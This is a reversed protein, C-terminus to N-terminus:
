KGTTLWDLFKEYPTDIPGIANRPYEVGVADEFVDVAATLDDSGELAGLMVRGIEDKIREEIQAAEAPTIAHKVAAHVRALDILDAWVIAAAGLDANMSRGTLEVARAFRDYDDDAIRLTITKM